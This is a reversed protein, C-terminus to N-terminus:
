SALLLHFMLYFLKKFYCIENAVIEDYTLYVKANDKRKTMAPSKKLSYIYVCVYSCTSTTNVIM